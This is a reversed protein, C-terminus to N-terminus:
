DLVTPDFNWIHDSNRNCRVYTKYRDKAIQIDALKLTGDCKPCDGGVKTLFVEGDRNSEFNFWKLRSFRTKWLMIGNMLLFISIATIIIFLFQWSSGLVSFISAFSGIFGILGSVIFWSTKVPSGLITVPQVYTRDIYAKDEPKEGEYVDGVHLTSNSFTNSGAINVSGDGSASSLSALSKGCKGCFNDEHSAEKGCNTCHM